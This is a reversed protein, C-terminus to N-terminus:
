MLQGKKNLLGVECGSVKCRQGEPEIAWPWMCGVSSVTDSGTHPMRASTSQEHISVLITEASVKEKSVRHITRAFEIDSLGRQLRAKRAHVSRKKKHGRYYKERARNV